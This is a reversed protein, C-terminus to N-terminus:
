SFRKEVFRELQTAYVLANRLLHSGMYIVGDANPWGKGVLLGRIKAKLAADDEWDGMFVALQEDDTLGDLVPQMNAVLEAPVDDDRAAESMWEMTLYALGLTIAFNRESDSWDYTALCADLAAKLTKGSSDQIYDPGSPDVYAAIVVETEEGPPVHLVVCHAEDSQAKTLEQAQAAGAFAVSALVAAGFAKMLLGQM